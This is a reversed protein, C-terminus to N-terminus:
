RRGAEGGVDAIPSVLTEAVAGLPAAEHDGEGILPQTGTRKAAADAADTSSSGRGWFPAHYRYVLLQLGFLGLGAVNPVLIFDDSVLVAYITWSLSCIGTCVSLPLPMAEVSRQKIVTRVVGLPAAYMCVNFVTCILGLVTTQTSAKPDPWSPIHLHPAVFLAFASLAGITGLVLALRLSMWLRDGAASFRIFIFVDAM